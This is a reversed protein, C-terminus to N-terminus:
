IKCRGCFALYAGKNWSVCVRSIIRLILSYICESDLQGGKRSTSSSNSFQILPAPPPPGLTIMLISKLINESLPSYSTGAAKRM